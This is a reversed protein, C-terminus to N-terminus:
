QAGGGRSDRAGFAGRALVDECRDLWKLFAELRLSALDLLLGVEPQAAGGEVELRAQAVEHLRAFSARREAAIVLSPDAGDIRGRLSGALVLKLFTENRLDLAPASATGLWRALERRGEGTLDYVKKDPREDQTVVRHAVLGDRELRELTTYIQGFNLPSLPVLEQELASKLEYGHQPQLALLGLLAYKVSLDGGESAVPRRDSRSRAGV